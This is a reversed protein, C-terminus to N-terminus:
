RLTFLILYTLLYYSLHSKQRLVVELNRESEEQDQDKCLDSIPTHKKLKEFYWKIKRANSLHDESAASWKTRYRREHPLFATWQEATLWRCKKDCDDMMKTCLHHLGKSNNPLYTSIQVNQNGSRM